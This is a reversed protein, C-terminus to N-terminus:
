SAATENQNSHVRWEGGYSNFHGDRVFGLLTLHHERALEIALSSPGGVTALMPAGAMLAKQVLEFSSRSSMFLLYDRLPTWGNLVCHGILKDLANHRGIDEFVAVIQGTADVLAAAHLGGTKAFGAQHERLQDPIMVIKDFDMQLHDTEFEPFQQAIADRSRKGCVGCSSNVYGQRSFRFAEFDVDDALVALVENSPEIGLPRVEELDRRSRVLGESLLLGVALECDKGPTRMTVAFTDNVRTEKFRYSIRIELPDEAAVEDVLRSSSAAEM